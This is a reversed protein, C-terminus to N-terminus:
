QSKLTLEQQKNYIELLENPNRIEGSISNKYGNLYVQEWNNYYKWADFDIVYENTIEVCKESIILCYECLNNKLAIDTFENIFKEQLNM